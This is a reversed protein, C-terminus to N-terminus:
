AMWIKPGYIILVFIFFCDLIPDFSASNSGEIEFLKLDEIWPQGMLQM